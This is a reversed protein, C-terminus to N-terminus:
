HFLCPEEVWYDHGCVDCFYAEPEDVANAQIRALIDEHKIACDCARDNAEHIPHMTDIVEAMADPDHQYEYSAYGCDDYSEAAIDLINMTHLSWNNQNFM